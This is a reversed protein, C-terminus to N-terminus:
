YRYHSPKYPGSPDVGLYESLVRPNSEIEEATGTAMVEGHALVYIRDALELVLEISMANLRDPRDLVVTAVGGDREVRVTRLEDLGIM